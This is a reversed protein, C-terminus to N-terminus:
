SPSRINKGFVNHLIVWEIFAIEKELSEWKKAESILCEKVIYVNDVIQFRLLYIPNGVRCLILANERFFGEWISGSFGKEIKKYEESSYQYPFEIETKNLDLFLSYYKAFRDNQMTLYLTKIKFWMVGPKLPRKALNKHERLIQWFNPYKVEDFAAHRDM